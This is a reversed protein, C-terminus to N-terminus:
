KYCPSPPTVLAAADAVITLNPHGSMATAPLSADGDLLRALVAAKSAGTVVLVVARAALIEALGLTMGHTPPTEFHGALAARTTEHLEVVRAADEPRSGPENFGVHGNLGLGLLALDATGLAQAHRRIATPPHTTDGDLLYNREDDRPIDDLLMSWLFHHYSRRDARSVGVLEDLQFLHARSLDITGKRVRQALERFTLLPTAGAPLVIRGEPGVAGVADACRSAAEEPTECRHLNM